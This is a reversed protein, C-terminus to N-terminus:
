SWENNVQETVNSNNNRGSGPKDDYRGEQIKAIHDDSDIIWHLDMKWGTSGKAFSSKEVRDFIEIWQEETKLDESRTKIKNRVKETLKKIRALSPCHEHYLDIVRKPDIRPEKVEAPPPVIKKGNWRTAAAQSRKTSIDSMKGIRKWVSPSWFFEGDTEFLGFDNVLSEAKSKEWHCQFAFSGISAVPIKGGQEYLYEILCWFFGLGELGLSEQVALLKPDFRAAIDHQFYLIKKM